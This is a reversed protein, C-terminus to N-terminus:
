DWDTVIGDVGFFSAIDEATASDAGRGFKDTLSESVLLVASEHFEMGIEGFIDELEAAIEKICEDRTLKSNAVVGNVSDAVRKAFGYFRTSDSTNFGNRAMQTTMSYAILKYLEGRIISNNMRANAKMENSIKTMVDSGTVADLVNNYDRGCTLTAAYINVM